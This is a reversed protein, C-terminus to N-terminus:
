QNEGKARRAADRKEQRARDREAAKYATYEHLSNGDYPLGAAARQRQAADLRRRRNLDKCNMGYRWDRADRKVIRGNDFRVTLAVHKGVYHVFLVRGISGEVIGFYEDTASSYRVVDGPNFKM